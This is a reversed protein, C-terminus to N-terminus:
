HLTLRTFYRLPDIPISPTNIFLLIPLPFRKHNLHDTIRIIDMDLMLSIGKGEIDCRKNGLSLPSIRENVHIRKENPRIRGTLGVFANNLSRLAEVYISREFFVVTAHGAKGDEGCSPYCTVAKRALVQETM